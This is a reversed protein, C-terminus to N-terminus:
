AHSGNRERRFYCDQAAHIIELDALPAQVGTHSEEARAEVHPIAGGIACWCKTCFKRYQIGGARCDIRVLAAREHGCPSYDFSSFTAHSGPVCELTAPDKKATM